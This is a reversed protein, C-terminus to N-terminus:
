NLYQCVRPWPPFPLVSFFKSSKRGNPEHFVGFMLSYPLDPYKKWILLSIGLSSTQPFGIPVTFQIRRDEFFDRLKLIDNVALKTSDRQVPAYEGGGATFFLPFTSIGPRILCHQLIYSIDFCFLLCFNCIGIIFKYYSIGELM